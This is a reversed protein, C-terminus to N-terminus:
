EPQISQPVHRVVESGSGSKGSSSIVASGCRQGAQSAICPLSLREQMRVAESTSRSSSRASRSGICRTRATPWVCCARPRTPPRWTWMTTPVAGGYAQIAWDIVQCAMNPVAGKIMVIEVKAEKSGKQDIKHAMHLTLLQAQEILIRLQAVREITFDQQAILKSFAVRSQTRKCMITM